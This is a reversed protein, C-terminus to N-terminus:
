PLPTKFRIDACDIQALFHLPTGSSTRPWEYKEPLKPLGGFHSNTPPGAHPPWTRHLLVAERRYQRFLKETDTSFAM